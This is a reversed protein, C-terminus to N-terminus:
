RIRVKRIGVREETGRPALVIQMAHQQEPEEAFLSQLREKIIARNAPLTVKRTTYRLMSDSYKIDELHLQNMIACIRASLDQKIKKQDFVTTRLKKLTEDVEHYASVFQRLQQLILPDMVPVQPESANSTM